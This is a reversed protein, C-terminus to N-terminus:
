LKDKIVKNWQSFRWLSIVFSLERLSGEKTGIYLHLLVSVENESEAQMIKKLLTDIQQDADIRNAKASNNLALVYIFM